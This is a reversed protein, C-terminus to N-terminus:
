FRNRRDAQLEAEWDGGVGAWGDGQGGAGVWGMWGYVRLKAIKVLYFIHLMDPATYV